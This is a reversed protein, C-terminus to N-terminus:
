PYRDMKEESLKMMSEFKHKADKPLYLPTLLVMLPLRKFLHFLLGFFSGDLIMDIMFHPKALFFFTLIDIETSNSTSRGDALSGFPEGFALDGIVDFTFWNYWQSVNVPENTAHTKLQEM